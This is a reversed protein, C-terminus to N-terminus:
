GTVSKLSLAELFGALDEKRVEVVSHEFSDIRVRAGTEEVVEQFAQGFRNRQGRMKRRKRAVYEVESGDDESSSPSSSSSSSSSSGSSEAEDSEQGDYESESDLDGNAAARERRLRRT